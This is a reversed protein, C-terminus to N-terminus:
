PTGASAFGHLAGIRRYVLYSVYRIVNGRSHMWSLYHRAAREKEIIGVLTYAYTRGDPGKAELVGIDGCLHSTTGTKSYVEVDPPLPVGSRLRDRKPLAMLRKIEKSGPLEDRWLALLFRSYDRATAKNRYTRGGAPIYEKVEVGPLMAGFEDHLQREVAAPGGLRRMVWDAAANDSVQIMKTMQRRSLDDYVLRGKEVHSMFALALFPKVLSASQLPLDANIEVLNEGTTFDYVAWATREDPALRGIRRLEKVHEDLLRELEKQEAKHEDQAVKPEEPKQPAATLGDASVEVWSQSPVPWAKGLRKRKLLRSHANATVNAARADSQRLYVVGYGGDASIVRLERAVRPGLISSVAKKRALADELSAHWLYSVDYRPAAARVLSPMLFAAVAVLLIRM